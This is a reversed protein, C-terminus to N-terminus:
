FQAPTFYEMCGIRACGTVELITDMARNPKPDKPNNQKINDSHPTSIGASIAAGM